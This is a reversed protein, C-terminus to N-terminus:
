SQLESTHEESRVYYNRFYSRLETLYYYKSASAENDFTKRIEEGGFSRREHPVYIFEWKSNSNSNNFMLKYYNVGYDIEPGLSTDAVVTEVGIDNLLRAVQKINM